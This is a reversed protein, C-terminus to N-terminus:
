DLSGRADGRNPGGSPSVGVRAGLAELEARARAVSAEDFDAGLDFPCRKIHRLSEVPDLRAYASVMRVVKLRHSQEGPHLLTLTFRPVPPAPSVPQM